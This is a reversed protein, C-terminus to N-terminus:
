WDVVTGDPMVASLTHMVEPEFPHKAAETENVEVGLGPATPIQWASGVRHMPTSVVDLKDCRRSMIM